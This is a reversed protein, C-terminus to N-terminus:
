GFPKTRGSYKKSGCSYLANDAQKIQWDEHSKSFHKLFQSKQDSSISLSLETDLFSYCNTVRKLYYLILKEAIIAQLTLYKEFDKLM